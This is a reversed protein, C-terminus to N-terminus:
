RPWTHLLWEAVLREDREKARSAPRQLSFGHAKLPRELYRYHYTVGFRREIVDAIRRLTGQETDFGSAVVGRDLIHGLRQWDTALLRAPRRGLPRARLRRAGGHRWARHWPSVAAESVGLARAIEM